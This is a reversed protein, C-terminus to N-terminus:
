TWAVVEGAAEILEETRSWDVDDGWVELRFSGAREIQEALEVVAETVGDIPGTTVAVTDHGRRTLILALAAAIGPARHAPVLVSKPADTPFTRAVWLGASGPDATVVTGPALSRKLDMVARAPHRPVADNVYGPQAVAALREFLANPELDTSRRPVSEALEGLYAPAVEIARTLAFREWPSEAEDIGTALIVDFDAFGLLEFDRAQLGCTGMHHPSDWAFAGKAGWTNAVSVNVRSAFARLDDLHHVVGPGALVTLRTDPPGFDTPDPDLPAEVTSPPQLGLDALAPPLPVDAFARALAASVDRLQDGVSEHRMPALSSDGGTVRRTHTTPTPSDSPGLVGSIVPSISSACDNRRASSSAPRSVDSM